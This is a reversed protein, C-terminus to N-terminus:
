NYLKVPDLMFTNQRSRVFVLKIVSTETAMDWVVAADDCLQQDVTKRDKSGLYFFVFPDWQPALWTQKFIREKTRAWSEEPVLRFLNPKAFPQRFQPFDYEQHLYMMSILKEPPEMALQDDPISEVRVPNTIDSSRLPTEPDHIVDVTDGVFTVLRLPRREMNFPEGIRLLDQVTSCDPVLTHVTYSHPPSWFDVEIHFLDAFCSEDFGSVCSCYLLSRPTEGKFHGYVDDGEFSLAQKKDHFYCQLTHTECAFDKDILKGVFELFASTGISVPFRVSGQSTVFNTLSIDFTQFRDTMFREFIYSSSPDWYVTPKEEEEEFDEEESESLDVPDPLAADPNVQVVVFFGNRIPGFQDNPNREKAEQEEAAFLRLEFDDSLSLFRRVEPFISDFRDDPNVFTVLAFRLPQDLCVAFVLVFVLIKKDFDTHAIEYVFFSASNHPFDEYVMSGLGIPRALFHQDIPYLVFADKPMELIRAAKEYVQDCTWYKKFEFLLGHTGRPVVSCRLHGANSEVVDVRVLNGKVTLERERHEMEGLEDKRKCEDLYELIHGPVHSEVRFLRDIESQRIYILMYASFTRVIQDQAKPDVGGFNSDLAESEVAPKVVSDNFQYWKLDKSGRLYTYYHGGLPGGHHVLVGFLEYLCTGGGSLFRGLDIQSPYSLFSNIKIMRGTQYDFQFRRLHVHLIAPVELFEVGMDADQKGFEGSDWQNAGQLPEVQIYKQFSEELSESKNVVLSLDYFVDERYNAANVHRARIFSRSRGRFLAPIRGELNTDRMKNELNELLVRLFEQVDQPIRQHEEKWGFSRMLDLTSCPKRGLQMLGFLRQLNLCINQDDSRDGAQADMAYILARFEPVHFLSQLISNM